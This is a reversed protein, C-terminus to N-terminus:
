KSSGSDRHQSNPCELPRQHATPASQATPPHLALQVVELSRREELCAFGFEGGDGVWVLVLTLRRKESCDHRSEPQVGKVSHPHRSAPQMNSQVSSSRALLAVNHGRLHRFDLTRREHNHANAAHVARSPVFHSRFQWGGGSDRVSVACSSCHHTKRAGPRRKEAKRGRTYQQKHTEAM